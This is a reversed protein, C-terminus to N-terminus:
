VRLFSPTRLFFNLVVENHGGCMALMIVQLNFSPQGLGCNM